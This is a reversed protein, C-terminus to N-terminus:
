RSGHIRRYKHGQAIGEREDNVELHSLPQSLGRTAMPTECVDMNILSSM